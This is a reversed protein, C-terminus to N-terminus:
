FIKKSNLPEQSERQNTEITLARDLPSPCVLANSAQLLDIAMLLNDNKSTKAIKKSAHYQELDCVYCSSLVYHLCKSKEKGVGIM